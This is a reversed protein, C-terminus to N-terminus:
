SPARPKGGPPNRQRTGPRSDAACLPHSSSPPSTQGALRATVWAATQAARQGIGGSAAMVEAEPFLGAVDGIAAQYARGLNVHIFRYDDGAVLRRLVGAWRGQRDRVPLTQDYSQIRRDPRIVGYKASVILLDLWVPWNNRPGLRKKLVRYVVGDYVDWAAGAALGAVKRHSCAIILLSRTM